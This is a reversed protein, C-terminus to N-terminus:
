AGAKEQKLKEVEKKLEEVERNLQKAYGVLEMTIGLAKWDSEDVHREKSEKHLANFLTGTFHDMRKEFKKIKM